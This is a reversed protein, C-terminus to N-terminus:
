HIRRMDKILVIKSAMYYQTINQINKSSYYFLLFDAFRSEGAIYKEQVANFPM